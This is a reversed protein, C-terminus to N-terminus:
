DWAKIVPLVREAFLRMSADADDFSIGGFRFCTCEEFRGLIERREELKDIIQEPTGYANAALFGEIYKDIGVARLKEAQGAYGSYGKTEAFHEGLLEYHELLTSLYGALYQEAKEKAYIPDDHCYTFDATMVPPAERGHLELFRARHQDISGMRKHWNTEAFMIMRGGMRACAEVSDASNAVAYIRDHFSREPRPRIEIPDQPYMPGDGKIYGTELAEVIMLSAEDFRERAEAMEVSRFPAYERRSLGRGFGVRVRGNSMHDLMSVKEAVRLPDNWPLIIAATGLAISETCAAFYSLLQLNDPCFSYDFFHHETPWIADFGLGEAQRGLALEEAYVQGDSPMEEWGGSTFILQLGVDM